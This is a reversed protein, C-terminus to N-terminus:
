SQPPLMAMNVAHMSQWLHTEAHPNEHTLQALLAKTAPRRAGSGPTHLNCNEALPCGCAIFQLGNYRAWATIATESIGYLPRILEMNPFNRSSLRPPMTETKGSHLMNMLLTEVADTMHHGLAIKNCGLTRAHAYLHGRRMRACLYCPSRTTGTVTDFINSSFWDLSLGLHAANSEIKHRNLPNYGPDMAMYRLTFPFISHQHLAQMLLALLMSDKGGSICVAITDEEQILDYQKIAAVFPRWLAHRFKKSLSRRITPLDNM